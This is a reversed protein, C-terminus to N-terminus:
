DALDKIKPNWGFTASVPYHDSFTKKVANFKLVEFTESSFIYDIRMPYSDFLYTTGLGNGRELFADKMENAIM